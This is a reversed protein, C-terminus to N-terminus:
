AKAREPCATQRTQTHRFATPLSFPSPLKRKVYNIRGFLDHDNRRHGSCQSLLDFDNEMAVQQRNATDPMIRERIQRLGIKVIRMLLTKPACERM